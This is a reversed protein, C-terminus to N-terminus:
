ILFMMIIWTAVAGPICFQGLGPVLGILFGNWFTIAADKEAYTLWTNITYTWCIGGICGAFVVYTLLLFILGFCGVGAIVSAERSM